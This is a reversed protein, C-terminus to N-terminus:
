LEPYRKENIFDTRKLINMLAEEDGDRLKVLLGYRDVSFGPDYWESENKRRLRAYYFVAILNAIAGFLVALEFMILVYPVLSVPHKGGVILDYIQVSGLTLALGSFFGTASGAITWLSVPSRRNNTLVEIEEIKVPTFTEVETFGKTYIKKVAEVIAQPDKYIFRKYITNKEKPLIRKVPIIKEAEPLSDKVLYDKFDAISIVPLFKTFALFLFLFFAAMGATISLEAWTPLYQSWNHPLFDHATSGVVIFYREMWMGINILISAAFLWKINKRFRKFTFSLPVLVNLFLIFYYIWSIWLTTFRWETFQIHFISGSYIEILPEIIYAYAIITMTLVIMKAIAQLHKPTIFEELNLLKRMPIMLTLAMALGSHIAGAVFYPAFLTSHWGPLIGAAFDWSVISHVSIVLPTALMAFFLYGKNYHKWQSLAGTWGAAMWSFMKTKWHDFGLKNRFRDRAAAADPILGFYFFIISVSLYTIVAILDLVLPSMFNPYLNRQNPYPVMFYFVWVRGLHILPFFAATLVAFVTMAETSRSVADRWKSRVLFLIASILTGSHAIGVWFIFNTIYVGWGVPHNIGSMGMGYKTQLLWVTFGWGVILLLIGLTFYYLRGRSGLAGLISINVEPYSINRTYETGM